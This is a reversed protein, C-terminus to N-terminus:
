RAVRSVLYLRASIMVLMREKWLILLTVATLRVLQRLLIQIHSATLWIMRTVRSHFKHYARVLAAICYGVEELQYHVAM